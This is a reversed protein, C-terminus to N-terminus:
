RKPKRDFDEKKVLFDERGEAHRDRLAAIEKKAATLSNSANELKTAIGTWGNKKAAKSLELAEAAETECEEAFAFLKDRSETTATM